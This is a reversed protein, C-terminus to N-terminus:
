VKWDDWKQYIMKLCEVQFVLNKVTYKSYRNSRKTKVSKYMTNISSKTLWHFMKKRFTEGNQISQTKNSLIDSSAPPTVGHSWCMLPHHIGVSTHLHQHSSKLSSGHRIGLIIQFNGHCITWFSCVENYRPGLFISFTHEHAFLVCHTVVRCSAVLHSGGTSCHLFLELTEAVSRLCQMDNCYRTIISLNWYMM